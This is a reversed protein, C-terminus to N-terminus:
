SESIASLDVVAQATQIPRQLGSTDFLLSHNGSIANDSDTISIVSDDVEFTWATLANLGGEEFDWGIAADLPIVADIVFPSTSVGDDETDAYVAGASNLPNGVVDTVTVPIEVFYEGNIRLPDRFQLQHNFGDLAINGVEARQGVPTTVVVNALSEISVQEDFILHVETLAGADFIPTFSIFEPGLVDTESVRIADIALTACCRPSIRFYVADDLEIGLENLQRDLDIAFHKQVEHSSHVRNFGYQWNEGDGSFEVDYDGDFHHDTFVLFDFTLNSQSAVQSLDVAFVVAAEVGTSDQGALYKQGSSTPAENGIDWFGNGARLLFNSLENISELEFDEFVPFSMAVLPGLRIPESVYADWSVEGNLANNSQNLLNGALDEIISAIRFSYDGILQYEESFRIEFTTADGLDVVEQVAVDRGLPDWVKIASVQFTASKIPEDFTVQFSSLTGTTEGTPAQMIIRPGFVDAQDISVADIFLPTNDAQEFRIYVDEDFDIQRLAMEDGLRFVYNQAESTAFNFSNNPSVWNEGDNSLSWRFASDSQFNSAAWLNMAIGDAATHGSLDVVLDAINKLDDDTSEDILEIQRQNSPVSATSSLIRGSQADWRWHELQSLDVNEFDEFYPVPAGVYVPSEVRAFYFDTHDGNLQDRNQNLANGSTDTVGQMVEVRYYGPGNLATAFEVVVDSNTAGQIVRAINIPLGTPGIVEIMETVSQIEIEENFNLEIATVPRSDIAPEAIGKVHPGIFDDQTLRVENIRVDGYDHRFRVYAEAGLVLGGDGLLKLIDFNLKHYGTSFPNAFQTTSWAMGDISVAIEYDYTFSGAMGIQLHLDGTQISSTDFLLEMEAGSHPNFHVVGPVGTENTVTIPSHARFSINRSNTLTLDDFTEVFPITAAIPAVNLLASFRSQNTGNQYQNLGNGLEDTVAGSILLVHKGAHLLDPSSIAFNINDSTTITILRADFGAPTEIRLAPELTAVDIPEDFSLEISNEDNGIQLNTSVVRPGVQDISSVQVDDIAVLSDASSSNEFRIFITDTLTVGNNTLTADVDYSNFGTHSNVAVFYWNTGDGSSHLSLTSTNSQWFNLYIEDTVVNSIDVAFEARSAGSQLTGRQLQLFQTGSNAFDGSVINADGGSSDATLTWESLSGSEFSEAYPFAYPALVLRAELQELRLRTRRSSNIRSKVKLIKKFNKLNLM